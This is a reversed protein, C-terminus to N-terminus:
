EKGGGERGNNGGKRGGMGSDDRRWMQLLM